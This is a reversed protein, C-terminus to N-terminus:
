ELSALTRLILSRVSAVSPTAGDSSFAARHLESNPLYRYPVTSFFIGITPTATAIALNRVGTDNSVVLSANALISCLEEIEVRSQVKVNQSITVAPNSLKLKEHEGVGELMVHEYNPLENAAQMVLEYFNEKPWCKSDVSAFPFYVIYNKDVCGRPQDGWGFDMPLSVPAGFARLAHLMNEAEFVYDSRPVAVDFLLNRVVPSYPFGVKLSATTLATLYRSRVTDALDFLIDFAGAQRALRFQEHLPTDKKDSGPIVHLDDVLDNPAGYVYNSTLSLLISANPFFKKLEVLFPRVLVMDGFAAHRIVMIRTVAKADIKSTIKRGKKSAWAGREFWLKM